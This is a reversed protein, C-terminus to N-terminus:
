RRNAPFVEDTAPAPRPPDLTQPEARLAREQAFVLALEAGIRAGAAPDRFSETGVAVVAAGAALFDAADRGCAIGGMGVVPISVGASVEAVQALAVARIAPGSLGGTGGGLWRRRTRPDLATGRLTNVLSVADAGAQETAEAVAAPNAASPTLKVVLPRETVPRVAAVARAAEAPDAGMILGTEVNPCSFNLELMAVEERDGVTRVLDVLETRTFGMVSVVLPM